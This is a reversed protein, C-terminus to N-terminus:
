SSKRCAQSRGAPSRCHSEGDWGALGERGSRPLVPGAEGQVGPGPRRSGLHRTIIAHGQLGVLRWRADRNSKSPRGCSFKETAELIRKGTGVRDDGAPLIALVRVVMWPLCPIKRFCLGIGGVITEGRRLALPQLTWGSQRWYDGAAMTVLGREWRIARWSPTGGSRRPKPYRGSM